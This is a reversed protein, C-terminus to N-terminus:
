EAIVTNQDHVLVWRDKIKQFVLSLLTTSSVNDEGTYVYKTLAMAMESTEITKLVECKWTWSNDKFWERHGEVFSDRSSDMAGHPMILVTEGGEEPLTAILAELDRNEVAAIHAALTEKFTM